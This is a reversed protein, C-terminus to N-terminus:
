KIKQGRPKCPPFTLTFVGFGGERGLLDKIRNKHEQDIPVRLTRPIPLRLPACEVWSCM